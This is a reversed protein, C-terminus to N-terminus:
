VLKNLFLFRKVIEIHNCVHKKINEYNSMIKHLTHIKQLNISSKEYKTIEAFLDFLIENESIDTNIYVYNDNIYKISYHLKNYEEDTLPVNISYKYAITKIIKTNLIQNIYEFHPQINKYIYIKRNHTIHISLANSDNYVRTIIIM